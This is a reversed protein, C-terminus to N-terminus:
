PRRDRRILTLAPLIVAATLVFTVLQDVLGPLAADTQVAHCSHVLCGLRGSWLENEAEAVCRFM